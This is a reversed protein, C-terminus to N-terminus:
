VLVLHCAQAVLERGTYNVQEIEHPIYTFIVPGKDFQMLILYISISTLIQNMVNNRVTFEDDKQRLTGVIIM